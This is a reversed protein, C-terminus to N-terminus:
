DRGVECESAISARVDDGAIMIPACVGEAGDTMVWDADASASFRTIDFSIGVANSSFNLL